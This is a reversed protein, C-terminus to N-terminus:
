RCRAALVVNWTEGRRESRGGRHLAEDFRAMVVSTVEFGGIIPTGKRLDHYFVDVRKVM